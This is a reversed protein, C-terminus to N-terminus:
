EAFRERAVFFGLLTKTWDCANAVLWFGQSKLFNEADDISRFQLDSSSSDTRPTSHVSDAEIM